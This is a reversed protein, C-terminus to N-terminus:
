HLTITVVRRGWALAQARTPFWLDIAAGRVAHGIDAAVGEGYGPITMRTGLPILAPDVAVVGWGARLGTATAGPLSYATAVVTVTQGPALPDAPALAGPVTTASSTAATLAATKERAAAAAAELSDIARSNMRQRSRLSELYGRRETIARELAATSAVAARELRGVRATQEALSRSLARLAKRAALAQAIVSENLAATRNLEELGDVADDLSEAGLLVAMPDTQGRVYLAHLREALQRRSVEFARRAIRLRLRVDARQRALAAARDRLRSLEARATGLKTDLAYLELLAASSRREISANEARLDGARDLPTSNPDAGGAVPLAAAALVGAVVAAFRAPRIGPRSRV